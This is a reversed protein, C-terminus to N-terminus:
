SEEGPDAAAPKTTALEQADIWEDIAEWARFLMDDRAADDTPVTAAEVVGWKIFVVNHEPIAVWIDAATALHDLGTHAVFVLDADPAASMAAKSGAPRPPLLNRLNEAREAAALRGSRRLRAIARTRRSATFNGGEPFIIFADRETMSGALETIAEVAQPGSGPGPSIFRNPLRNLLIDFAPDLQLLAKAVIRPRRGQWSLVEHLLLISDAPGAHRSMVILPANRTGDGGNSSGDADIAPLPDSDIRIDLDFLRRGGGVILVLARRLLAYHADTFRESRIRWGFGSACWLIFAAVSVFAEVFLYVTVLGLARLLRLKGPLLYSLVLAAIVLLPVTVLYLVSLLIPLPWLLIRRLWRPPLRM